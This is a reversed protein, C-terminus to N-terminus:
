QKTFTKCFATCLECMIDTQIVIFNTSSYGCLIEVIYGYKDDSLSNYLNPTEEKNMITEIVFEKPLKEHKQRLVYRGGISNNFAERFEEGKEYADPRSGKAAGMWKNYGTGSPNGHVDLLAIFNGTEVVERLTQSEPESFPGTGKWDYAGPKYTEPDADKKYEEWACAGNRNLDVQNGNQRTNHEYGFPNLIPIIKLSFRNLDIIDQDPNDALYKIFTLAGYASEWENGHACSYILIGPNEPNGMNLGFINYDGTGSGEKKMKVSSYKESVEKMMEVFEPYHYRRPYYEGYKVGNGIANVLFLYKNESDKTYQPEPLSLMDVAIIKGKGKKQEILVIGDDDNKGLVTVDKKVGALGILKGKNSYRVPEGKKYGHTVPSERTVIINTINVTRTQYENLEAFARIDMVVTGGFSAYVSIVDKLSDAKSAENLLVILGRRFKLIEIKNAQNVSIIDPSDLLLRISRVTESSCELDTIVVYKEGERNRAIIGGCFLLATLFTFIVRNFNQFTKKM